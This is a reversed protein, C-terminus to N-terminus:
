DTSGAPEPDPLLTYGSFCADMEQMFVKKNLGLVRALEKGRDAMTSPVNDNVVNPMRVVFHDWIVTMAQEASLEYGENFLRDVFDNLLPRFMPTEAPKAPAKAPPKATGNTAPPAAKRGEAAAQAQGGDDDFDTIVGLLSGLTYRRFYTIQSGMDQPTLDTRLPLMSEVMSDDEPDTIRTVLVSTNDTALRIPQTLVLGVEALAPIVENLMDDLTMYAYKRGGKAIAEGDRKVYLGSRQVQALKKHVSM